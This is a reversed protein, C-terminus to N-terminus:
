SLGSVAQFDFQAFVQAGGDKEDVFVAGVQEELSRISCYSEVEFGVSGRM